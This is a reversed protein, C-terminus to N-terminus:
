SKQCGKARQVESELVSMSRETHRVERTKTGRFTNESWNVPGMVLETVKVRPQGADKVADGVSGNHAAFSVTNTFASMPHSNSSHSPNSFALERKKVIRVLRNLVSFEIKLKISYIAPKYTAQINYNGSYETGLLTADFILVLINVLVLHALLKRLPNRNIEGAPGLLRVTEYIYFASIISEQITFIGVQIKDFISFADVISTHPNPHNTLFALIMIPIGLVIADFIIMYLVWRLRNENGVVLNLRSYLVLSQGSVMAFWGISILILPAWWISTIGFFKLIFGVTHPAIGWTAVIFSWFYLGKRRKFTAFIIVNLELVNYLAITSFAVMTMFIPVSVSVAGTIGHSQEQSM